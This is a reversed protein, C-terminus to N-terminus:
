IDKRIAEKMSSPIHSNSNSSCAHPHHAEPLCSTTALDIMYPKTILHAVALVDTGVPIKGQNM